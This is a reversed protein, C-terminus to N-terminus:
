NDQISPVDADTNSNLNINQEAQSRMEQFQQNDPFATLLKELPERAGEYDELAMRAEALSQLATLNNPERELDILAGAEKQYLQQNVQLEQKASEAGLDQSLGGIINKGMSIAGSAIFSGAGLALFILQRRKRRKKDQEVAKDSFFPM